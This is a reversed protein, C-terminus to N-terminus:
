RAGAFGPSQSCKVHSQHQAMVWLHKLGSRGQVRWLNQDHGKGIGSGGLQALANPCTQGLRGPEKLLTIRGGGIIKQTGQALGDVGGGPRVTGGPQVQRRLPHVLRGNEGDVAPAAAHQFGMRKVTAAQEGLGPHLVALLELEGGHLVVPPVPKIRKIGGRQGCQVSHCVGRFGQEGLEFVAPAHSLACGGGGRGGCLRWRHHQGLPRCPLLLAKGEFGRRSRTPSRFHDGLQTLSHGALGELTILGVPQGAPQRLHRVPRLALVDLYFGQRTEGSARQNGLAPHLGGAVRHKVLQLGQM